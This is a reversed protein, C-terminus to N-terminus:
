NDRISYGDSWMRLTSADTVFELALNAFRDNTGAFCYLARDCGVKPYLLSALVLL